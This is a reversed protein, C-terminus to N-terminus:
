AACEFPHATAFEWFEKNLSLITGSFRQYGDTHIYFFISKLYGNVFVAEIGNELSKMYWRDEIKVEEFNLKAYKDKFSRRDMGIDTYLTPEM